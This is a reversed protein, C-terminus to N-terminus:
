GATQIRPFSASKSKPNFLGKARLYNEMNRVADGTHRGTGNTSGASPRLIHCEILTPGRGLRARSIAEYAVRYVAVLDDTDVAISPFWPTEGDQSKKSKAEPPSTWEGAGSDLQQVFIIPLAHITAIHITERLTHSDKGNCYLVAIKGGQATKSALATGIVAHAFPTGAHGNLGATKKIGPSGNRRNHTSASLLKKLADTDSVAALVELDLSGVVDGPGLDITTGVVAAEHGWGALSIGNSIEVQRCKVLNRYLAILKADSILSFKESGAPSAGNRPESGSTKRNGMTRSQGELPTTQQSQLRVRAEHTWADPFNVNRSPQVVM